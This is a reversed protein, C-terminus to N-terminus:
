QTDAPCPKDDIRYTNRGSHKAAYMAADARSLLAQASEQPDCAIAIGISTGIRLTINELMFDQHIADLLKQAVAAAQM